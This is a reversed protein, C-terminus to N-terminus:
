LDSFQHKTNITKTVIWTKYSHRIIIKPIEPLSYYMTTLNSCDFISSISISNTVMWRNFLAIIHLNQQKHSKTNYNYISPIHIVSHFSFFIRDVVKSQVFYIKISKMKYANIQVLEFYRIVSKFKMFLKHSM